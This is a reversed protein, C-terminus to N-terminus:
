ADGAATTGGIGHQGSRMTFRRDQMRLRQIWVHKGRQRRERRTRIDGALRRWVIGIVWLKAIVVLGAM